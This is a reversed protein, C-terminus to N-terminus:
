FPRFNGWGQYSSSGSSGPKNKPDLQPFGSYGGAQTSTSSPALSTQSVPASQSSAFMNRSDAHTGARYGNARAGFSGQLATDEQATARGVGKEEPEGWRPGVSGRSSVLSSAPRASGSSSSAPDNWRPGASPKPGGRSSVVSSAASPAETASSPAPSVVPAAAAAVKSRTGEERDTLRRMQEVMKLFQEEKPLHLRVFSEPDGSRIVKPTWKKLEFNPNPELKIDSEEGELQCVQIQVGDGTDTYLIPFHVIEGSINQCSIQFLHQKHSEDQPMLSDALQVDTLKNGKFNPLLVANCNVASVAQDVLLADRQYLWSTNTFNEFPNTNSKTNIPGFRTASMPANSFRWRSAEPAPATKAPAVAITKAALSPATLTLSTGQLAEICRAIQCETGKKICTKCVKHEGCALPVVGNFWTCKSCKDAPATM